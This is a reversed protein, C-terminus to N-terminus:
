GNWPLPCDQIMQLALEEMYMIEQETFLDVDIDYDRLAWMINQLAMLTQESRWADPDQQVVLHLVQLGYDTTFTAIISVLNDIYDQNVIQYVNAM